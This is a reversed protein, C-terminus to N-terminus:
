KRGESACPKAEQRIPWSVTTHFEGQRLIQKSVVLAFHAFFSPPHINGQICYVLIHIIQQTIDCYM